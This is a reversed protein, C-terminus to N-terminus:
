QGRRVEVRAPTRKWAKPAPWPPSPPRSAAAAGRPELEQVSIVKVYDAASLGGRLRAAGSTPLVHNPGSAYDGAAEPSFPGIFVSGAHRIGPSCAPTTSPQPARPRLPQLNRRGRRALAGPHHRQEQRHGQARRRRHAPDRAATRNRKAVARPWGSAVHDAPHRSADTDHEAQALMDAALWRPIATTPSSSFKPPGPSSTSASKAPWCSRPPPSTSTAPASSATPARSPEPATPSPPSPRPAAWRSSTRSASCRRPASSRRRRGRALRRLHQARRRGAGPDVTMM